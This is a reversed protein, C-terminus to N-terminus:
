SGVRVATLFSAPPGATSLAAGSNQFAQIEVYDGANLQFLRAPFGVGTTDGSVATGSARGQGAGNIAIRAVREGTPNAAFGICGSVLYLGPTVATLRSTNSVLSHMGDSDSTEGDFLISTSVGNPISQITNQYVDVRVPNLAFNVADRIQSNFLAATEKQRVTWTIMQPVTAM